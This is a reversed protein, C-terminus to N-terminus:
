CGFKKKRSNIIKLENKELKISIKRRRVIEWILFVWTDKYNLSQKDHQGTKM